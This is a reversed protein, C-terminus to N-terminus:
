TKKDGSVPSASVRSSLTETFGLLVATLDKEDVRPPRRTDDMEM